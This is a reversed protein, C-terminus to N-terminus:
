SFSLCCLLLVACLAPLLQATDEYALLKLMRYGQRQDVTRCLEALAQQLCVNRM